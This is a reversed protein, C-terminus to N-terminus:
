DSVYHDCKHAQWRTTVRGRWNRRPPGLHLVDGSGLYRRCHDPFSMAFRVDYNSADESPPFRKMGMVRFSVVDSLLRLNCSPKSHPTGM